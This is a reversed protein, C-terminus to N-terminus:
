PFFNTNKEVGITKYDKLSVLSIKTMVATLLNSHKKIGTRLEQRDKLMVPRMGSVEEAWARCIRTRVAARVVGEEVM